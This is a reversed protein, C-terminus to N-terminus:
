EHCIQMCMSQFIYVNLSISIIFVFVGLVMYITMFRRSIGIIKLNSRNERTLSIWSTLLDYIHGFEEM